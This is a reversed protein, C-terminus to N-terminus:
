KVIFKKKYKEKFTIPSQKSRNECMMFAFEYSTSSFNKNGRKYNKMTLKNLKETRPWNLVNRIVNKAYTEFKDSAYEERSFLVVMGGIHFDFEKLNDNEPLIVEVKMARKWYDFKDYFFKKDACNEIAKVLQTDAFSTNCWLLGLVLIGLLKKM